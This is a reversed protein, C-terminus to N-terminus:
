LIGYDIELEDLFKESEPTKKYEQYIPSEFRMFYKIEKGRLLSDQIAQNGM